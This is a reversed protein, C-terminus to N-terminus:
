VWSSTMATARQKVPQVTRSGSWIRLEHERGEHVIEALLGHEAVLDRRAAALLIAKLHDVDQRMVGGGCLENRAFQRLAEDGVIRRLRQHVAHRLSEGFVSPSRRATSSVMNVEGSNKESPAHCDLILDGKSITTLATRAGRAALRRVGVRQHLLDGIQALREVVLQVRGAIGVGALGPEAGGPMM